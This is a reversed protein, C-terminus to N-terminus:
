TRGERATFWIRASWSAGPELAIVNAPVGAAELNIANTPCTYPEFCITERELPAYVVVDHFKRGFTVTLEVNAHPDYVSCATTGNDFEIDTFVDDVFTDGIARSRRFDREPPVDIVRGTAILDADLEWQRASPIRVECAARSGGPLLPMRFYPHIGFGMPMNTPGTNRAVVDLTLTNGKLTYTTTLTFPFPFQRIVDPHDEARLECTLRASTDDATADVVQWPTDYILGHIHHGRWNPDFQHGRGEWHFRADRIRNPFPFLFANGFMFARPSDVGAPPAVITEIDHGDLHVRFSLLNNGRAPVLRASSRANTDRLVYVDSNMFARTERDITYAPM